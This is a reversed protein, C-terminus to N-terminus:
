ASKLQQSKFKLREILNAKTQPWEDEIISFYTTNRKRGDSRIMHNRLVGERKAGMKEMAAQSVLNLTDAKLEVRICGMKEFAHMLMLLKAEPNFVSGQFPRGIWTGGIEVRRHEPSFYAFESCGIAEQTRRNIIAFPIFLGNQENELNEKVFEYANAYPRPFFKFLDPSFYKELRAVHEIALPELVVFDGVLSTREM